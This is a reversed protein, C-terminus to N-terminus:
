SRMSTHLLGTLSVWPTYSTDLTVIPRPKELGYLLAECWARM